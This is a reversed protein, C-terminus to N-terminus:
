FGKSFNWLTKPVNFLVHFTKHTFLHSISQNRKFHKEPLTLLFVHTTFPGWNKNTPNPGYFISYNDWTHKLLIHIRITLM